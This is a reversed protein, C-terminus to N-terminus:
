LFFLRTLVLKDLLLQLDENDYVAFLQNEDFLGDRMSSDEFRFTEGPLFEHGAETQGEYFDLSDYIFDNTWGDEPNCLKIAIPDFELGNTSVKRYITNAPLLLFEKRTVILM